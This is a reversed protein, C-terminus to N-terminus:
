TLNLCHHNHIIILHLKKHEMLHFQKGFQSMLENLPRLFAIQGKENTDLEGIRIFIKEGILYKTRDIEFPGSSQWVRPPPNM